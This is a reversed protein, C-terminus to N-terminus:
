EEGFILDDFDLIEGGQDGSAWTVRVLGVPLQQIQSGELRDRTQFYNVSM